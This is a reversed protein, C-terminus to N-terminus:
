VLAVPAGYVQVQPHVPDCVQPPDTTNFSYGSRAPQGTMGDNLWHSGIEDVHWLPPKPLM